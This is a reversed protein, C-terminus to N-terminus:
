FAANLNREECVAGPLKQLSVTVCPEEGLSGCVLRSGSGLGLVVLRVLANKCMVLIAIRACLLFACLLSNHAVVHANKLAIDIGLGTGAVTGSSLIM